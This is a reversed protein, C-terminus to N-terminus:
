EQGRAALPIEIRVLFGGREGPAVVLSQRDGYLLRLREATASLGLGSDLPDVGPEVGPGDDWVEIALHDQRSRAAVRVRATGVRELAGHRIANEVLPQLLMPPVLIERTAPEVEIEVDLRAGFRARMLALYDELSEIEQALTVEENEGRSLSLRLLDGLRQIMEDAAEVDRHMAASITNLSNFLFHPQLQLRLSDLRAQTLNSQLQVAELERQRSRRLSRAIHLGVVMGLFAIVDISFEMLYRAPMLGYDYSGQGMLPYLVLRSVWNLNTHIVSFLPLALLYLGGRRLWNARELPWRRVMARLPWFLLGAGLVGTFEDMLIKAVPSVGGAAVVALHRYAFRLFSLVLVVVLWLILTSSGASASSPEASAVPTQSHGSVRLLISGYRERLTGSLRGVTGSLGVFDRHDRGLWRM